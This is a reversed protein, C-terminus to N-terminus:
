ETKKTSALTLMEAVDADTLNLSKKLSFKISKKAETAHMTAVSM